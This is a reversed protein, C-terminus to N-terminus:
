HGANAIRELRYFVDVWYDAGDDTDKWVFGHILKDRIVAANARRTNVYSAEKETPASSTNENNAHTADTSLQKGGSRETM